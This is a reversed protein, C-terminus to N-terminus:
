FTFAGNQITGTGSGTVLWTSYSSSLTSTFNITNVDPILKFMSNSINTIVGNIYKFFTKFIYFGNAIDRGVWTITYLGTENNYNFLPKDIQVINVELGTGSLSFMQLKDFTLFKNEVLPYIRNFNLNDINIVYVEPYIIKYNTTSLENFLTTKCFLLLNDNENYWVTSFKELDKYIGRKFYCDNKTISITTNTEYDFVIKDAVLYNETEFVITDYYLDFNVTKNVLEEYIYASYKLYMASLAASAPVIVSSNSNRYYLVGTDLFNNEYITRKSDIGSLGEIVQTNRLPINYNLYNSPLVYSVSFVNDDGCPSASNYAFVSGNIDRLVSTPPTFTYEGPFVFNARFDPGQSNVGGDILELYYLNDTDPQYAPDDSPFDPLLGSSASVFTEGDLISCEFTPLVQNNPFTEPQFRYAVIPLPTGTLAFMPPGENYYQASLPTPNLYDVGQTYWGTGPPINTTTKLLIGTYKTDPEYYSYDFNYGSIPDFYLHGDITLAYYVQIGGQNTPTNRLAKNPHYDKFLVYENGYIDNKYQSATKNISYLKEIRNDLPFLNQPIIPFIDSNAWVNKKIGNFFDQPDTYKSLGQLSLGLSQERAQYARFTQFYPSSISDGFKYQNSFDTKNFYSLDTFVVPTNFEQETLGSINGYKSPDPFIYVTNASLSAKNIAIDIGFSYFNTLGLKDPKFFLGIDKASRSFEDSPIAAVSPYRKNLYNAFENEAAFLRGTLYNSITSGTSVYYFDTGIFKEVQLKEVNLNLNDVNETNITNIFDKDKLFKLPAVPEFGAPVPFDDLLEAYQVSPNALPYDISFNNTGLEVLFFPYSTIAAIVSNNFTLFISPDIDYQNTAFYKARIDDASDYASAPLTPSVDLYSTNKDYLEEIDIVMNNRVDSLPLNLTRVLETLDDTELAKSIQNYILGKTGYISGKLNYQVVASKAEDRLTSYYLCIDKIKEAFFPVAVALDRNNSFDINKLFRKEDSTTYSLVIENILLTYLSKTIAEQEPKVVNKVEYWNNLYSQYRGLFEDVTTFLSSNYQLWKQFTLPENFDIPNDPKVLSTISVSLKEDIFRNNSAM